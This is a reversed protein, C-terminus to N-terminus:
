TAGGCDMGVHQLIQEIQGAEPLGLDRAAALALCLLTNAQAREDARGRSLLALAIMARCVLLGRVDGLREFVPLQEETRIRLAEDLQGRAQLIDAICGQFVAIDAIAGLKKVAPLCQDQLLTLAEDHQGRAQLIDAIKRQTVAASRVDGLREYVPLQEETRIRLAEDLQGRNELIDAIQGRTVAASRVDGLREYVPLEEETRIRLAEDLQGRAQLIDAIRGQEVAKLRPDGLRVFAPLVEETRIRLAEDLQGRAQLIDAIKGRTVAAARVDGLREYVPLQEETRIRLAEDLQGRALLIDAIKGRTVAAGRVDGLRECVPLVEETRIRLAEDLQGRNELIDAIKGRTVAAERVDGLRAFVPLQEETRIRLAEDLQGRNELIDAIKGRTVAASRVDGLREFVPLQEETRIRLAEDLQGRAEIIDAIKGRTVAASRVDGLREYVPLQEETRIRLAEDLQGRKELIDAIQGRTVAAERVDGLREFVPLEEETRIRLAADFEGRRYLRSAYADLLALADPTAAGPAAALAAGAQALLADATAGDGAAGIVRVAAAVLPSPAPHGASKLLQVVDRGLQAAAPYSDAELARIAGAGCTAAVAADGAALALRALQLDAGAPRAGAAGGWATFLPAVLIAALPAWQAANLPVLRAAALPSVRLADPARSLPDEGPEILALDILRQVDGGIAAALAAVVAPPVPLDFRALAQLLDRGASGALGLLTDVAIQELLARVSETAPLAGGALYSEMETLAAAAASVPVAPNLLLRAILLDLLGPNGRAAAQARPLQAERPALDHLAPASSRQRLLLKRTAADQFSGLEIRALRAALDAGRDTLRFPFRSTILLRSDTLAPDFARLLTAILAAQRAQVPRVGAAEDLVQEFDDLILLVARGQPTRQQCPGRLLDTLLYGLVQCAAEPGQQAAASLATQADRLLDRATPDFQLAEDLRELVQQVGFRGHLVVLTLDDRRRNALRAALSSKGLRGMGTLLVGAAANDDLVRLAQQLERRRGVFLSHAAVPVTKGLFDKQGHTAPLLSRKRGGGVLPRAGDGRSGLWLRAHHWHRSIQADAANLLARRAEALALALPDRAALRGYLQAAFRTAARDAVAGDWGIVAPLGAQILASTLSHTLTDAAMPAPAGLQKGGATPPLGTGPRGSAAASLCASLFLLRPPAPRLARLLGAADTPDPGGRGDELLLIPRPTEGANAQWAHHGHCSLHLVPLGGAAALHRGLTDAEGSEEVLLDLHTTGVADLIATEEAEYDLEMAGAPAAAMFALGLRCDDLAPPPETPGLRRQPSFQLLADAALYGRDNALLEWPAQLLAWEVPSPTRSPCHISFLLPPTAGALLRGLLHQDGDLWRYLDGGIAYAAAPDPRQELFAYRVALAQLFRLADDDLTRESGLPTDDLLLRFRDDQVLIGATM